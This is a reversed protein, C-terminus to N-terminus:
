NSDDSRQLLVRQAEEVSGPSIDKLVDLFSMKVWSKARRLALPVPSAPEKRAYYDCIAEIAKVVDQRNNIAGSYAATSASSDPEAAGQDGAEESGADVGGGGQELLVALGKAAATLTALTQRIDISQGHEVFIEDVSKLGDTLRGLNAAAAELAEAGVGTVKRDADGHVIARILGYRESGEGDRALGLMDDITVQGLRDHRVVAVQLLPRVFSAYAGFSQCINRRGIVESIDLAPHLTEWFDALLGHTTAVGDAALELDAAQVGARALYVGLELDKTQTLEEVILKVVAAGDLRGSRNTAPGSPAAEGDSPMPPPEYEVEFYREIEVRAASDLREPGAPSDDSVPTLLAAVDISM